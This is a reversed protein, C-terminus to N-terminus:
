PQNSWIIKFTKELQLLEIIERLAELVQKAFSDSNSTTLSLSVSHWSLSKKHPPTGYQM